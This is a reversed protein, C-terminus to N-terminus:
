IVFTIEKFAFSREQGNDTRLLLEGTPRVGVIKAKFEDNSARYTCYIDKRYLKNLYESDIISVDNSQVQQYREKFCSLFEELSQRLDYIKGTELILSTPNPLESSFEKQNLNIGIGVVSVNLQSSSFSNEILIGAIKNNGIYIDNPWKIAVEKDALYASIWDCVSIAVVKSILFQEEVKLFLPRLLISFTLNLASDSEWINGRQGRGFEQYKAAIVTGEERGASAARMCVDNTSSVRDFWSINLVLESNCCM